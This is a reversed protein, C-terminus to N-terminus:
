TLYKNFVQETEEKLEDITKDLTLIPSGIYIEILGPKITCRNRPKINYLWKTIIPLINPLYLGRTPM